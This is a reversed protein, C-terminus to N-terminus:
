NNNHLLLTPNYQNQQIIQHHHLLYRRMHISYLIMYNSRIQLIYQKIKYHNKYHETSTTCTSWNKHIKLM